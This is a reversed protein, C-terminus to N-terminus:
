KRAVENLELDRPIVFCVFSVKKGLEKQRPTLENEQGNNPSVGGM